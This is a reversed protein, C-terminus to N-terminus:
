CRFDHVCELGERQVGPLGESETDPKGLNVYGDPFRLACRPHQTVLPIGLPAVHYKVRSFDVDIGAGNSHQEYTGAQHVFKGNIYLSSAGTDTSGVICSGSGCVSNQSHSVSSEVHCNRGLAVTAFLTLAVVAVSSAQPYM